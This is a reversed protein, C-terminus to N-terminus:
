LSAWGRDHQDGLDWQRLALERLFQDNNQALGQKQFDLGAYGLGIQQQGLGVNAEKIAQDYAALQQQLNRNQDGSLMSGQAALAQAIEDRRAGYERGLLESQFGSTAQGVKEAAMRQEGRMNAYPGIQEATDSLYNRKAREQEARFSDVQGRIIPDDATVNLGQSARQNLTSYLADARSKNEAQQQSQQDVQRTMLERYWDPYQSPASNWAQAPTNNANGGQNPANTARKDIQGQAGSWGYKGANEKDSALESDTPARGFKDNYEKTIDDEIAM